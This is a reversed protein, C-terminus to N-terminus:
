SSFFLYLRVFNMGTITICVRVGEAAFISYRSDFSLSGVFFRVNLRRRCAALREVMRFFEPRVAAAM